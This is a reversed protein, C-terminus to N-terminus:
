SGSPGLAPRNQKPSPGRCFDALMAKAAAIPGSWDGTVTQRIVRVTPYWPMGGLELGWRWDGPESVLVITPVGMAGALHVLATDVAVVADLSRLCAASDAFDEIFPTCDYIPHSQAEAAGAGVQLSFFRFDHSFLASFMDITLSRTRDNPHKPNGRWVVGIRPGGEGQFRERWAEVDGAAPQLYAAALPIDAVTVSLLGPLSNLACYYDAAFGDKGDAQDEWVVFRVNAPANLQFLRHVAKPAQFIVAAGRASLRGLLPFYQIMDGYGEEPFVLITKARLDEGQWLWPPMGNAPPTYQKPNRERYFWGPRFDGRRLLAEGLLFALYHNNPDRGLDRRLEAEPKFM